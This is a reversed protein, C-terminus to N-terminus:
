GLFSQGANHLAERIRSDPHRYEDVRLERLDLGRLADAGRHALDVGAGVRVREEGPAAVGLARRHQRLQLLDVGRALSDAREAHAEIGAM